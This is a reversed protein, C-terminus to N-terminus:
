DREVFVKSVFRVFLHSGSWSSPLKVNRNRESTGGFHRQLMKARQLCCINNRQLLRRKVM